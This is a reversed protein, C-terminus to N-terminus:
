MSVRVQSDASGHYRHSCIYAIPEDALSRKLGNGRRGWRLESSRAVRERSNSLSFWPTVGIRGKSGNGHMTVRAAPLKGARVGHEGGSIEKRPNGVVVWKCVIEPFSYDTQVESRERQQRLQPRGNGDCGDLHVVTPREWRDTCRKRKAQTLTDLWDPMQSDICSQRVRDASGLSNEEGLPCREM